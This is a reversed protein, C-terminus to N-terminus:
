HVQVPFGLAYVVHPSRFFMVRLPYGKEREAFKAAGGLAIVAKLVLPRIPVHIKAFPIKCNPCEVVMGCLVKSVGMAPSSAPRSRYNCGQCRVYFPKFMKM